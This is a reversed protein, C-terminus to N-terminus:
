NIVVVKGFSEATQGGGSVTAKMIYVGTAVRDAAYDIGYWVIDDFYGANVSQNTKYTWIKRGALTFIDIIIESAPGSLMMSIRTSDQMPNPYNLFENVALASSTQVDATFSVSASNNANDWAKIKFTHLGQDISGLPWTVTGTTYDDVAGRYHDTLMITNEPRGDIELSIGHGLGGALNIGSPDSLNLVLSDTRTVPDGDVFNDRKSFGFQIEPGLSDTTAAVQSSVPLSDATGVADGANLTAYGVIRAGTGGYGIDLPPVFTFTFNGGNITASGRLLTPGQLTYPTELRELQRDTDFARLEITGDAKLRRGADDEIHGSVTVPQLAVLSDPADSFVVNLQPYALKLYPDGFYVYTRDNRLPNPPNSYLYQREV